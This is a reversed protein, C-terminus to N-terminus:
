RKVWDRLLDREITYSKEILRQKEEKAKRASDHVHSSSKGQRLKTSSVGPKIVDELLPKEDEILLAPQKALLEVEEM